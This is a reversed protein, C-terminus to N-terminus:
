NRKLHYLPSPLLESTFWLSANDEDYCVAEMQPTLPPLILHRPGQLAQALTQGPNLRWENLYSYTAIVVRRGDPSISGGSTQCAIGPRKGLRPLAPFDVHGVKELMFAQGSHRPGDPLKFLTSHGDEEKTLIHIERTQPHLLLCEANYRKDPYGLHWIEPKASDEEKGPDDPLEPEPIRYIQLSARVKLNDGIDAIYLCPRNDEDYGSAMDEWDFNAAKPLRIKALTEGKRNIAFVCPEGGSDNHTWFVGAHRLSRAIGSSEHIRKDQFVAVRVAPPEEVEASLAAASLGLCLIAAWMKM